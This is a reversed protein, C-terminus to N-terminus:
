MPPLEIFGMGVTVSPFAVGVEKLMLAPHAAVSVKRILPVPVTPPFQVAGPLKTSFTAVTTVPVPMTELAGAPMLQPAVHLVLKAVPELTVKVADGAPPDTKKPQLPAQVPVPVQVTVIFLTCDTVAVNKGGPAPLSIKGGPQWNGAPQITGPVAFEPHLTTDLSEVWPTQLRFDFVIM